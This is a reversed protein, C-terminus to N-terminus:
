TVRRDQPLLLLLLLVIVISPDSQKPTNENQLISCFVRYYHHRITVLKDCVWSSLGTM